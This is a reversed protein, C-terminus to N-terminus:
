ELCTEDKECAASFAELELHQPGQECAPRAACMQVAGIATVADGIHEDVQRLAILRSRETDHRAREGPRVNPRLTAGLGYREVRQDGQDAPASHIHVHVRRLEDVALHAPRDESGPLRSAGSRTRWRLNTRSRWAAPSPAAMLYGEDPSVRM